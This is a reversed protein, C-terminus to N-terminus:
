LELHLRQLNLRYDDQPGDGGAWLLDPASEVIGAPLDEVAGSYQLSFSVDM